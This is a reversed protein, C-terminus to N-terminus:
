ADLLERAPHLRADLDAMRDLESQARGVARLAAFESDGDLLEAIGGSGQLLQGANALRKHSENLSDLEAPTLAHRDLEGLQHELLVIREAHDEGGSLARIEAAIERWRLSLTIATLMSCPSSARKTWCRRINTSAM